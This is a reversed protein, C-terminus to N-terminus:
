PATAPSDFDTALENTAKTFMDKVAPGFIVMVAIVAVAIFGLILGYETMGQGNEEKIIRNIINKM